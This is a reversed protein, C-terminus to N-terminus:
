GVVARHGTAQSRLGTSGAESWHGVQGSAVSCGCSFNENEWRTEYGWVLEIVGIQVTDGDQVGLKRLSDSIGMASLIRQFRMGAEYYDWNTMQAVREIAVGEVQWLGDDLRTVQFSREDETPSLTPM